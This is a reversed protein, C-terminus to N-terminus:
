DSPVSRFIARLNPLAMRLSSNTAPPPVATVAETVCKCLMDTRPLVSRAGRADDSSICTQCATLPCKLDSSVARDEDNAPYSFSSRALASAFFKSVRYPTTSCLTCSSILYTRCLRIHLHMLPATSCSSIRIARRRADAFVASLRRFFRFVSSISRGSVAKSSWELVKSSRFARDDPDM